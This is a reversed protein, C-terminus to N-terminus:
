QASDVSMTIYKFWYVFKETLSTRDYNHTADIGFHDM